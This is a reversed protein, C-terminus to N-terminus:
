CVLWKIRHLWLKWIWQDNLKLINNRIKVIKVRSLYEYKLNKCRCKRYSQLFIIWFLIIKFYYKRYNECSFLIKSYDIMSMTYREYKLFM